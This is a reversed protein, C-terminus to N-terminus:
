VFTKNGKEMTKTEVYCRKERSKKTRVAAIKFSIKFGGLHPRFGGAYAPIAFVNLCSKPPQIESVRKNTSKLNLPFKM